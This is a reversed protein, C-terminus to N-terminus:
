GQDLWNLVRELSEQRGVTPAWDSDISSRFETEGALITLIIQEARDLAPQKAFVLESRLRARLPPPILRVFSRVWSGSIRETALRTYVNRIGAQALMEAVEERASSRASLSSAGVYVPVVGMHEAIPDIWEPWATSSFEALHHYRTGVRPNQRGLLHTLYSAANAVDTTNSYAAAGAVGVARGTLLRQVVPLAWTGSAYGWVNGLRVIDLSLSRAAQQETFRREAVIKSEVYPIDRMEPAPGVRVPYDLTIGFVALSSVQILRGGDSLLNLVTETITRNQAAQEFPAGSTPYALNIVLDFSNPPLASATTADHFDGDVSLEPNGRVIATVRTERAELQRLLERGVFGAAGLVGINPEGSRRM